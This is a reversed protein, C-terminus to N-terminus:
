RRGGVWRNVVRSSNHVTCLRQIFENLQVILRQLSQQIHVCWNHAPLSPYLPPPALPGHGWAGMSALTGVKGNCFDTSDLAPFVCNKFYM